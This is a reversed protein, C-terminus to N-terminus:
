EGGEGNVLAAAEGGESKKLAARGADTLDWVNGGPEIGREAAFVDDLDDEDVSRLFILGAEEWVDTLDVGEGCADNDIRDCDCECFDAWYRRFAEEPTLRAM